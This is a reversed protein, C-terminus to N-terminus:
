SKNNRVNMLKTKLKSKDKKKEEFKCKLILGDLSSNKM